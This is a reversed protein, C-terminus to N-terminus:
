TSVFLSEPVASAMAKKPGDAQRRYYQFWPLLHRYLHRGSKTGRTWMVVVHQADRFFRTLRVFFCCLNTYLTSKIKFIFLYSKQGWILRWIYQSSSRCLPLFFEKNHQFWGKHLPEAWRMHYDMWERCVRLFQEFM